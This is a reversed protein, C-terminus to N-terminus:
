AKTKWSKIAIRPYLEKVFTIFKYQQLRYSQCIFGYFTCLRRPLSILSPIPSNFWIYTLFCRSSTMYKQSLSLRHHCHCFTKRCTYEIKPQSWRGLIVRCWVYAARCKRDSLCGYRESVVSWTLGPSPKSAIWPSVTQKCTSVMKFLLEHSIKFLLDVKAFNASDMITLNAATTSMKKFICELAIRSCVHFSHCRLTM